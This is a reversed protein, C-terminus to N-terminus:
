TIKLAKKFTYYTYYFKIRRKKVYTTNNKSNALAVYDRITYYLALYLIFLSDLYNYIAKKYYM